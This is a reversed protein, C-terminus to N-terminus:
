AECERLYQSTWLGAVEATLISPYCELWSLATFAAFAFLSSVMGELQTSAPLSPCCLRDNRPFKEESVKAITVATDLDACPDSKKRTRQPLPAPSGADRKNSWLVLSSFRLSARLLLHLQM